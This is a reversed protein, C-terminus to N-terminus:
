RRNIMREIHAMSKLAAESRAKLEAETIYRGQQLAVNGRAFRRVVRKTAALKRAEYDEVGIWASLRLMM